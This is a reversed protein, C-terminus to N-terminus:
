PCWFSTQDTVVPNVIAFLAQGAATAWGRDLWKEWAAYVSIVGLVVRFV